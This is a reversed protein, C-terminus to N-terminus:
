KKNYLKDIEKKNIKNNIDKNIKILSLYNLYKGFIYILFLGIIHSMIETYNM